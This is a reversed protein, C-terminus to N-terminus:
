RGPRQPAAQEAPASGTGDRRAKEADRPASGTGDGGRRAPKRPAGRSRGAYAVSRATLLRSLSRLPLHPRIEVTVRAGDVHIRARAKGAARRAAAMPDAGELLAVAGAQAAASASERAKGAGLVCFAAAAVLVALPLLAALEVTAQGSEGSRPIKRRSRSM